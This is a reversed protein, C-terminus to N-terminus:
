PIKQIKGREAIETFKIETFKIETFKIETFKIETVQVRVKYNSQKIKPIKLANLKV